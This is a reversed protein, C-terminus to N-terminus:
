KEMEKIRDMVANLMHIAERECIWKTDPATATRLIFTRLEGLAKKKGIKEGEAFEWELRKEVDQMCAYYGNHCEVMEADSRGVSSLKMAYRRIKPMPPKVRHEYAGDKLMGHVLDDISIYPKDMTKWGETGIYREIELGQVYAQVVEGIQENTM